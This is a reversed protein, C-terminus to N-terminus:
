RSMWGLLERLQDFILALVVIVAITIGLIIPIMLGIKNILLFYLSGLFIIVLLVFIIKLISSLDLFDKLEM